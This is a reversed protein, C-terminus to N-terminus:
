SYALLKKALRDLSDTYFRMFNINNYDALNLEIVLDELLRKLKGKEEKNTGILKLIKENYM